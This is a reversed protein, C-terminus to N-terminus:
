GHPLKPILYFMPYLFIWIIDVYHWYIGTM